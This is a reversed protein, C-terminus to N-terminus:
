FKIPPSLTSGVCVNAVFGMLVVPANNLGARIFKPSLAFLPPTNLLQAKAGCCTYVKACFKIETSLLGLSSM